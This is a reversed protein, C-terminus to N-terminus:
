ALLLVTSRAGILEGALAASVLSWAGLAVCAVVLPRCAPWRSRSDFVTGAAAAALFLAVVRQATEYYAGQGIIAVALAALVLMAPAPLGTSTPAGVTPVTQARGDPQGGDHVAQLGAEAM